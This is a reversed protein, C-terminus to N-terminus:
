KFSDAVAKAAALQGANWLIQVGQAQMNAIVQDPPVGAIAQGVAATWTPDAFDQVAHQQAAQTGGGALQQLAQEAKTRMAQSNGVETIVCLLGAGTYPWATIGFNAPDRPKGADPNDIFYGVGPQGPAAWWLRGDNGDQIAARPPGQDMRMPPAGGTGTLAGGTGMKGPSTNIAAQVPASAIVTAQQQITDHQKHLLGTLSAVSGPHHHIFWVAAGVLLGIVAVIIIGRWDTPPVAETLTEAFASASFFLLAIAKM